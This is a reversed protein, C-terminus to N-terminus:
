YARSDYFGDLEALKTPNIKNVLYYQCVYNFPLVTTLVGLTDVENAARMKSFGNSRYAACNYEGGGEYIAIIRYPFASIGATIGRNALDTTMAKIFANSNATPDQQASSAQGCDIVDPTVKFTSTKLLQAVQEAILRMKIAAPPPTATGPTTSPLLAPYYRPVYIVDGKTIALSAPSTPLVGELVLQFYAATPIAPPPPNTATMLVVDKLLVPYLLTTDIAGPLLAGKRVLVTTGKKSLWDQGTEVRLRTTPTTAGAIAQPVTLIISSLEMRDWNWNIAAPDKVTGQVSVYSGAASAPPTITKDALVAVNTAILRQATVINPFRDVDPDPITLSAKGSPNNGLVNGYEDGLGLLHGLEHVFTAVGATAANNASANAAAAAAAVAPTFPVTPATTLPPPDPFTIDTVPGPGALNYFKRGGISFMTNLYKRKRGYAVSVGGFTPDNVIVCVLGSATADKSNIGWDNGTMKYGKATDPTTLTGLIANFRTLFRNGDSRDGATPYYSPGSVGWDARTLENPSATELNYTGKVMGFLTDKAYTFLEPVQRRWAQYLIEDVKNDDFNQSGKQLNKGIWDAKIGALLTPSQSNPLGVFTLLENITYLPSRGDIRTNTAGVQEYAIPHSPVLYGTQTLASKLTIGPSPDNSLWNATWFDISDKLIDFPSHLAYATFQDKIFTLWPEVDAQSTFGETLFLLKTKRASDAVAGTYFRRLRPRAVETGAVVYITM